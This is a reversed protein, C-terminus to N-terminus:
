HCSDTAVRYELRMNGLHSLIPKLDGHSTRRRAESDLLHPVAIGLRPWFRSIYGSYIAWIEM